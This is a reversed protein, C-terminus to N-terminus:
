KEIRKKCDILTHIDALPETNTIMEFIVPFTQLKGFTKADRILQKTEESVNEKLAEARNKELFWVAISFYGDYVYLWYLTKEKKTGRKTTWRHQGRGFWAKHPTYWQWEQEMELDPLGDQFTKYAAFSDWLTQELVENTPMIELERLQLKEHNKM